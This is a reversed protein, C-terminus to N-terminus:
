QERTDGFFSELIPALVDAPAGHGQGDLVRTTANPLLNTLAVAPNRLTPPSAGGQFILV